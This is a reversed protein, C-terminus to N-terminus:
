LLPSLTHPVRGFNTRFMLPQALYGARPYACCVHLNKVQSFDCIYMQKNHKPYNYFTPTFPTKPPYKKRKKPTKTFFYIPTNKKHPPNYINIHTSHYYQIFIIFHNSYITYLVNNSSPHINAATNINFNSPLIM